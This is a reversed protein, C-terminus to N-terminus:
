PTITITATCGEANWGGIIPGTPPIRQGIMTFSASVKRTVPNCEFYYDPDDLASTAIGDAIFEPAVNVLWDCVDEQYVNSGMYIRANYKPEEGSTDYCVILVYDFDTDPGLWPSADVRNAWVWCCESPWAPCAFFTGPTMQVVGSQYFPANMCLGAISVGANAQTGEVCPPCTGECCDCNDGYILQGNNGDYLLNGSTPDYILSDHSM